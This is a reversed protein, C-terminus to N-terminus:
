CGFGAVLADYTASAPLEAHTDDGASQLPQPAGRNRCRPCAVHSARRQCASPPVHSGLVRARPKSTSVACRRPGALVVTVRTCWISHTLTARDRACLTAETGAILAHPGNMGPTDCAARASHPQLFVQGAEFVGEGVAECRSPRLSAAVRERVHLGLCVTRPGAELLARM